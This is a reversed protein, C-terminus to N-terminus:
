LLFKHLIFLKQDHYGQIVFGGQDLKKLFLTLNPLKM